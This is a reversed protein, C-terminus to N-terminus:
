RNGGEDKWQDYRYDAENALADYADSYARNVAETAHDQDILSAAYETLADLWDPRNLLRDGYKDTEGPMAGRRVAFWGPGWASTVHCGRYEAMAPCGPYDWTQKEEPTIDWEVDFEIGTQQGKGTEEVVVTTTVIHALRPTM